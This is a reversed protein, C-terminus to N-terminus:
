QAVDGTDEHEERTQDREGKKADFSPSRIQLGRSRCRQGGSGHVGRRRCPHEEVGELVLGPEQEPESGGEPGAQEGIPVRSAASRSSPISRRPTTRQSSKSRCKVCAKSRWRTEKWAASRKSPFVSACDVELELKFPVGGFLVCIM